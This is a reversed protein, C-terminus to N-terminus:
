VHSYEAKDHQVDCHGQEARCREGLQRMNQVAFPYSSLNDIGIGTPWEDSRMHRENPHRSDNWAAKGAVVRAIDAIVRRGRHGILRTAKLDFWPPLPARVVNIGLLRDREYVRAVVDRVLYEEVLPVVHCRDLSHVFTESQLDESSINVLAHM